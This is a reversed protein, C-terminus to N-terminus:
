KSAVTRVSIRNQQVQEKCVSRVSEQARSQLISPHVQKCCVLVITSYAYQM